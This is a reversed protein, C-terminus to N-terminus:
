PHGMEFNGSFLGGVMLFISSEEGIAEWPLRGVGNSSQQEGKPEMQYADIEAPGVGQLFCKERTGAGCSVRDFHEYFGM